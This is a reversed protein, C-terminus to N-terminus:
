ANDVLLKGQELLKSIVQADTSTSTLGLDTRLNVGQLVIEQTDAASTAVGNTFDGHPSVKIVTNGSSTDFELYNQLNSSNEGQLLDRLDLVDGGAAPTGMKFDTITDVARASGGATGADAFHWAFVDAGAGGTMVDNGAGGIILDNGDGGNITDNGAGGNLVDDGKGGILTDNGDHGYLRDAGDGGTLTDAGAGGMIFAADSGTASLTDGASTGTTVHTHALEISLSSSVTDGDKDALSFSVNEYSTGTYQDPAVYSYDGTGMNVTLEGGLATHVSVSPHAADYNYVVGDVTISAVHGFGDAGMSASATGSVLLSGSLHEDFTGALATDLQAFSTVVMGNLNEGAQGDYAIPDLNVQTVGTGMGVAYSKIANSNLFQIWSAEENSDIGDGLNAQTTAGNQGNKGATPNASSLTPDGDSFFYAVNQAGSLKGASTTFASEAQSLAYDYNTGGSATISALLTKAEAVSLWHDGQATASSSFTVLRVSVTGADDYQDLLNEVSQVAAQLRTLGDIGSPDNMSGSTDLVILLNTDVTDVHATLSTPATPSDDEV